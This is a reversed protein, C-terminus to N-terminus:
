NANKMKDRVNHALKEIEEAKRIVDLSLTDKTSKDVDSQLENALTVLKQTDSVLEKQREANRARAQQEEMQQPTQPVDAGMDVASPSLGGSGSRGGYGGNQAGYSGSPAPGYGGNSGGGSTGTGGQGSQARAAVGSLAVGAALFWVAFGRLLKM